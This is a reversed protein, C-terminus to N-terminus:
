AKSEPWREFEEEAGAAAVERSLEVSNKATEELRVADLVAPGVQGDLAEWAFRAINEATPVRVRFAELERNLFRGGVHRLVREQVARDLVEPLLVRGSHPDVAGSVTVELLYNHGHGAPNACKGYTSRNREADWDPRALVHAASFAYRRTLRTM